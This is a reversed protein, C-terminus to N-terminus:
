SARLHDALIAKIERQDDSSVGLYPRAPITVKLGRGAQGGLQQIRAYTRNAGVYLTAGRSGGRRAGPAVMHGISDYLDGTERLKKAGPGRRELTVDSLRQWPTSDPGEEDEFRQQTSTVLSGGIDDLPAQVSGLRVMLARLEHSFGDHLEVEIRVTM